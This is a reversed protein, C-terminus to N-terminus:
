PPPSMLWKRGIVTLWRSPIGAGAVAAPRARRRAGVRRGRHARPPHATPGRPASRGEEDAPVRHPALRAARLATGTSSGGTTSGSADEYAYITNSGADTVFMVGDGGEDGPKVTVDQADDFGTGLTEVDDGDVDSRYVAGGATWYVYGTKVSCDVGKVGPVEKWVEIWKGDVSTRYIRGETNSTVFIFATSNGLDFIAVDLPEPSTRRSTSSARHARRTTPTTCTADTRWLGSGKAHSAYYLNGSRGRARAGASLGM